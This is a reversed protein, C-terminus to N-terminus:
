DCFKSIIKRYYEVAKELDSIEIYENPKHCLEPKGPGFIVVPANLKNFNPGDTTFGVAKTQDAEVVSCFEKVFDCENDTLLAGVERDFIVEADFDANEAKLKSCLEQLDSIIKNRDQGPLTRIDVGIECRDPVVNITKGGKITNISMSCEGLLENPAADIKYNELVALVDKMSSIANIGLEPTSSHAAKGKTIIKLWLMGRHATVVEFDTPEPIVIGVLEPLNATHKQVFRTAGCSDTEEGAGCFLIIDANLKSGPEIMEKIATTIAAVGGKMDTAGRGYIRGDKEFGSFSPYEWKGEGIPVVDLHCAFLIAKDPNDSKVWGAVNARNEDWCDIQCDVGIDSLQQSIIEAAALEGNEVTTEAQILQKLLEKM